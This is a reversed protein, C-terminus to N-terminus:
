PLAELRVSGSLLRSTALTTKPPGASPLEPLLFFGFGRQVGGDNVLVGRFSVTRLLAKAPTVTPDADMLTFTGALTGTTGPVFTTGSGPTLTLTTIAPNPKSFKAVAPSGSAIEITSVDLRREPNPAGGNAFSLRANIVSPTANLLLAGSAPATYRDGVVSLTLPGFGEKYSRTSASQARKFWSLSSATMTDVDLSGNLSGTKGYLLAFVVVGGQQGVPSSLTLLTDDSLRLVGSAVGKADVKLGGWCHGQPVTVLGVDPPALTTAFTYNGPLSGVPVAPLEASFSLSDAGATLTGTLRRQATEMEIELMLDSSGKRKITVVAEPPVGAAIDLVGSFSHSVTGLVVSGSFTGKLTSTLTLRGGLNANLGSHRPLVGNFTGIADTPFAEVEMTDSAAAPSIGAANTAKVTITYLGALTPRGSISGTIRDGTLGPPLGSFTYTTPSHQATVTHAFSQSVVADPLNLANVVPKLNVDLAVSDSTVSGAGNSVIVSYSGIDNVDVATLSLSRSTAGSIFSSGRKWQYNVASGTATVVFSASLGENVVKPLPQVTITPAAYVGLTAAQSERSGQVNSVVVSYTGADNTSAAAIILTPSTQGSLATTGKKWQYALGLGEAQVTFTYSGGPAVAGSDPDDIIVPPGNTTTPNPDDQDLFGDVDRDGGMRAGSGPLVGLFTLADNAALTNLLASRTVSGGSTADARYTQTATQFSWSRQANGVTGRVILDCDSAIARAELLAIDALVASDTKNSELATRSYGVTPATGTDFCQMFAALDNFEQQTSLQDLVYAHVTPLIFGTGDHLMGFGTRSVAGSQGNFFVRQYVTRLPPNKVPQTLGAEQPLDINNDSGSPLIHCVNCHSKLHNNFLDRGTVPNGTAFSTPLTRDRNRNPNAAHRLSLLYDHLADIDEAPLVSGGMLKDFTGNFSQLTPKDGRWHFPAGDQMGRLTQTTMPGKMPHMVRSRPTTNHASLNAGIVTLMDGGPDGLDWAMGDRDADLHCSACSATGNGSLRADFLYGRGEKILAPTPDYTGIAMETSVTATTSNIVSITNRLKNLVFLREGAEDWALARPGRVENGSHRVDVRAIVAGTAADVKAVRDTGFAATWAVSGDSSFVIGTPQALSTAQATANPLLDYDIGPNLDIVTVSGTGPVLKSLRNNIFHGRLEPEFRIQNLAETNPVWLEDTGPRQAVDFLNTGLGSFYSVAHSTANIIAVDNDLVTYNIRSDTAPVILGTQPAAPLAPNTPTPPAPALSRKLVTTGNGSHLFTTYIQAGDASVALSTPYLGNLAISGLSARTTADLVRISNQRACTIFAKGQAFVVDAPEDGVQVTDIVAAQSLSVVTISDSVENVVWVEDNSRARVSVPELGVAIENLLAPTAQTADFVSLRADPSNVALLRSGDPTLAISHTHRAEFHQYTQAKVALPASLLCLLIIVFPKM